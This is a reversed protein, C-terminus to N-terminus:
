ESLFHYHTEHVYEIDAEILNLTNPFQQTEFCIGLHNKHTVNNTYIVVCPQNSVISLSRKSVPDRYIINPKTEDVADELSFPHDIGLQKSRYANEIPALQEFDFASNRVQIKPEIPLGNEDIEKYYRANVFLLHEDIQNRENGALNFYYHNTLNIHCDRDSRTTYKVTLSNEDKLKFEAEVTFNGPFGDSLHQHELKLIVSCWDTGVTEGVFQWVKKHFGEKGGHLNSVGENIDSTYLIGDVEIQGKDLRGANIGITSNLYYPNEIYDEQHDYKMLVNESFGSQDPVNLEMMTCGYTLLKVSMGHNNSMTISDIRKELLASLVEHKNIEVRM